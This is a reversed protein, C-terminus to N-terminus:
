QSPRRTLSWIIVVGAAGALAHKWSIEPFAFGPSYRELPISPPAIPAPVVVLDSPEPPLEEEAHELDDAIEDSMEEPANRASEAADRSVELIKEIQRPSPAGSPVQGHLDEIASIVERSAPQIYENMAEASVDDALGGEAMEALIPKSDMDLTTRIAVQMAEDSSTGEARLGVFRVLARQLLAHLRSAMNMDSENPLRRMGLSLSRAIVIVDGMTPPDWSAPLPLLVRAPQVAVSKPKSFRPPPAALRSKKKGLAVLLRSLEKVERTLQEEIAGHAMPDRAHSLAERSEMVKKRKEEIMKGLARVSLPLLEIAAERVHKPQKAFVARRKIREDRKAARSFAIM